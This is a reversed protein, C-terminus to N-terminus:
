IFRMIDVGIIDLSNKLFYFNFGYPSPSRDGESEWISEEIEEETIEEELKASEIESLGKFKM